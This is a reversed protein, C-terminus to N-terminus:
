ILVIQKFFVIFRVIIGEPEEEPENFVGVVIGMYVGVLLLLLVILIKQKLNNKQHDYPFSM